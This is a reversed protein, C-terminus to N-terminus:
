QIKSRQKILLPIFAVATILLSAVLSSILFDNDLPHLFNLILLDYIRLFVIVIGAHIVYQYDKM